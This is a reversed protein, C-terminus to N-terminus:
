RIIMKKYSGDPTRVIRIGAESTSVKRGLLDYTESNTISDPKVVDKIATTNEGGDAETIHVFNKWGDSQSYAQKRGAPVTLIANQYTEQSFTSNNIPLPTDQRVIVSSINTSGYFAESGIKTVVRNIVVSDLSMCSKFAEGEISITGDNDVIRKKYYIDHGTLHGIVSDTEIWKFQYITDPFNITKLGTSIFAQQGIRHLFIPWRISTLKSDNAFGFASIVEITDPLIVSELKPLNNFAGIEGCYTPPFYISTIEDCGQFAGSGLTKISDPLIIDTFNCYEFACAGIEKIKNHLTFQTNSCHSFAMAPITTIAEPISFDELKECFAFSFEGIHKVSSPIHLLCNSCKFFAYDEISTITEPMQVSSVNQQSFASRAITTVTWDKEEYHISAPIIIDGEYSSSADPAAVAVTHEEESLITYKIGNHYFDSAYSYGINMMTLVLVIISSYYKRNGMMAMNFHM